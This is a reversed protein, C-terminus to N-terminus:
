PTPVSPVFTQIASVRPFEQILKYFGYIVNFFYFLGFFSFLIGPDTFYKFDLKPKVGKVFLPTFNFVLFIISIIYTTIIIKKNRAYRNIGSISFILHLFSSPVFIAGCYMFRVWFLAHAKDPATHVAFIGFSWISVSFSLIFWSRNIASRTNKLYVFIGQSLSIIATILSALALSSM